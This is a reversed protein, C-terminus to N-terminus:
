LGTQAAFASETVKEQDVLAQLDPPLELPNVIADPKVADVLTYNFYRSNTLNNALGNVRWATYDAGDQWPALAKLIKLDIPLPKSPDSMRFEVDGLKYRAGTEFKLNIKAKNQPQEVKVDHLRWYSDFFGNNIAADSIRTKTTEYAGHNLIDGENLDPLVRIVQFQALNAGAGSFEINQQEVKVPENTVVNVKLSKEDVKSFKFEANYYGVAQAAQVALTRLQPVAGNFDSYAEQTFTSLKAKINNALLTPAGDVTVSIKPIEVGNDQPKRVKSILRQFFGQKKKEDNQNEPNDLNNVSFAHDNEQVNIQNDSQITQMLQDVNVPAQTIESLEQQTADSVFVESTKGVGNRFNQAETKAEEATQYIENALSQDVPTAPL